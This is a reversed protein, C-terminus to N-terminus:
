LNQQYEAEFINKLIFVEDLPKQRKSEPLLLIISEILEIKNSLKKRTCNPPLGKRNALSSYYTYRQFLKEGSTHGNDVAIKDSNVRTIHIENYVCLLAIQNITLSAKSAKQQEFRSTIIEKVKSLKKNLFDLRKDIRNELLTAFNFFNNAEKLYKIYYVPKKLEEKIALCESIEDNIFDSENIESPSYKLYNQLSEPYLKVYTDLDYFISHKNDTCCEYLFDLMIEFILEVSMRHYVNLYGETYDYKWHDLFINQISFNKNSIIRETIDIYVDLPNSDEEPNLKSISDFIKLTILFFGVSIDQHFNFVNNENIVWDSNKFIM